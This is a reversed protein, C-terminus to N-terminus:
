SRPERDQLVDWPVKGQAESSYEAVQGLEPEIRFPVAYGCGGDTGRVETVPNENNCVGVALALGPLQNGVGVAVGYPLLWDGDGPAATRGLRCAIARVPM